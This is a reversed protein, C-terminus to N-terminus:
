SSSGSFSIHKFRKRKKDAEGGETRNANKKDGKKEDYSCDESDEHQHYDCSPAMFPNQVPFKRPSIYSARLNRILRHCDLQIEKANPGEPIWKESGYDNNGEENEGLGVLVYAYTRAMLLRLKSHEGTLRYADMILSITPFAMWTKFSQVLYDMARDALKLIVYKEAFSFLSVLIIPGKEGISPCVVINQYVWGLFVEFALPDDEPLNARQTKAESFSGNFM